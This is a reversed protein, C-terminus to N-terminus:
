SVTGCPIALFKDGDKIPVAQDLGINGGVGKGHEVRTLDDTLPAGAKERIERGTVPPHSFTVSVHRGDVEVTIHVDHPHPHPHESPDPHLDRSTDM